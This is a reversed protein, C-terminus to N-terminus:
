PFPGYRSQPAAALTWAQISRYLLFGVGKQISPLVSVMWNAGSFKLTNFSTTQREDCDWYEVVSTAEEVKVLHIIKAHLHTFMKNLLFVCIFVALRM